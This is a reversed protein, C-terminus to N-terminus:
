NNLIDNVILDRKFPVYHDRYEELYTMKAAKDWFRPKHNLDAVLDSLHYVLYNTEINSLQFIDKSGIKVLSLSCEEELNIKEISLDKIDRNSAFLIPMESEVLFHRLDILAKYCREKVDKYKNRFTLRLFENKENLYFFLRVMKMIKNYDLYIHNAKVALEVRKPFPMIMDRPLDNYFDDECSIKGINNKSIVSISKTVNNYLKHNKSKRVFDKLTIGSHLYQIISFKTIDFIIKGSGDELLVEGIVVNKKFTISFIVGECEILNFNNSLM